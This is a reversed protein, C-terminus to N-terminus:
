ISIDRPSQKKILEVDPRKPNMLVKLLSTMKTLCFGVL